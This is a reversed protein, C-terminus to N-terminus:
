KAQKNRSNRPWLVNIIIYYTMINFHERLLM